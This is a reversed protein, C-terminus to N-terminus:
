GEPLRLRPHWAESDSHGCQTETVCILLHCEAHVATTILISIPPIVQAKQILQILQAREIDQVGQIEFKACVARLGPTVDQFEDGFVSRLDM